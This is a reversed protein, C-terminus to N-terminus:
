LHQGSGIDVPVFEKYKNLIPPVGTLNGAIEDSSPMFPSPHSKAGIDVRLEGLTYATKGPRRANYTDKIFKKFSSVAMTRATRDKEAWYQKYEQYAESLTKVQGGVCQSIKIESGTGAMWQLITNSESVYTNRAADWLVELNGTLYGNPAFENVSQWIALGHKSWEEDLIAHM